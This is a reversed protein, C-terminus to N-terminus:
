DAPELLFETLISNLTHSKRGMERIRLLTRDLNMTGGATLDLVKARQIAGKLFGRVAQPDHIIAAEAQRLPGEIWTPDLTSDLALSNMGLENKDDFHFALKATYRALARDLPAQEKARDLHILAKELLDDQAAPEYPLNLRSATEQRRQDEQYLREAQTVAARAATFAPQPGGLWQARILFLGAALMFIAFVRFAWASCQSKVADKEASHLSLAFLFAAFWALTIRHGPVDFIGHLPVIMAAILCASRLARDRGKLIGKRSHWFATCILGVLGLTAPVGTEAAMWLFDSEPHYSDAGNVVASLHRYQPFVFYFQGAGVGTWKFDRILDVTDYAIPVRLDIQLVANEATQGNTTSLESFGAAASSKEVTNSLREKVVSGVLTFMGLVTLTILGVAWLGNRGLYKRGLLVLWSISGIAVLVVGARSISWGVVAWLCVATSILALIMLGHRKDRMMQLICGMGCISGMALYTATHNRNPFFGFHGGGYGVHAQLTSQSLKAVIAYGAIGVVFALACRRLQLPSARQTSMWIGVILVIVFFTLIEAAQTSQIAVLSGTQVGLEKLGERWEIGGTWQLPLFALTGGVAFVAAFVWWCRPLSHAPPAFLMLLALGVWLVGHFGAWPGAVLFSTSFLLLWLPGFVWTARDKFQSSKDGIPGDM